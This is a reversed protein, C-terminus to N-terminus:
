YEFQNVRHELNFLLLSITRNFIIYYKVDAFYSGKEVLLTIKSSASEDFSCFGVCTVAFLRYSAQTSVSSEATDQFSSYGTDTVRHCEVLEPRYSRMLFNTETMSLAEMSLYRADIVM